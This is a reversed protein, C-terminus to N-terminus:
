GGTGQAALDRLAESNDWTAPDRVRDRWPDPDARRAVELIWAQQQEILPALPGTTSRLWWPQARM